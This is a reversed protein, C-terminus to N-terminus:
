AAEKKSVWSGIASYNNAVYMAVLAIAFIILINGIKTFSPSPIVAPM